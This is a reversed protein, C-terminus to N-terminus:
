SSSLQIEKLLFYQRFPNNQAKAEDQKQPSRTIKKNMLKYSYPNSNGSSFDRLSLDIDIFFVRLEPIDYDNLLAAIGNLNARFKEDNINHFSRRYFYLHYACPAACESAQMQKLQQVLQRDYYGSGSNEQPTEKTRFDARRIGNFSKVEGWIWKNQNSDKIKETPNEMFLDLEKNFPYHSHKVITYEKWNEEVLYEFFKSEMFLGLISRSALTRQKIWHGLFRWLPGVKYQGDEIQCIQVPLLEEEIIKIEEEKLHLQISHNRSEFIRDLLPGYNELYDWLFHINVSPIEMLSCDKGDKGFEFNYLLNGSVLQAILSMLPVLGKFGGTMDLVMRSKGRTSEQIDSIYQLLNGFGEELLLRSDSIKVSAIRKVHIYEQETFIRPFWEMMKEGIISAAFESIDTDTAILHLFVRQRRQRCNKFYHYLSRLEACAMYNPTEKSKKVWHSKLRVVKRETHDIFYHAKQKLRENKKTSVEKEQRLRDVLEGIGRLKGELAASQSAAKLNHFLSIGVTAIFVLSPPHKTSM